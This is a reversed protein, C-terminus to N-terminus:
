IIMCSIVDSGIDVNIKFNASKLKLSLRRMLERMILDALMAETVFARSGFDVHLAQNRLHKTMDTLKSMFTKETSKWSIWVVSTKGVLIACIKM